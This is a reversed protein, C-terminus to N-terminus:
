ALLTEKRKALWAKIVGIFIPLVSLFVITIIVLHLKEGLPTRGIFYGLFSMSTVWLIGGTINFFVFNRYSMKAVGAVFPVFTRFIPVFRALIIAKGGHKEYFNHADEVYKKKFFRGDERTFIKSGTKNGLYFGLQDGTIAATILLANLVWINLIPEQGAFTASCLIGATVILSDGPLFFGALLGTEAFIIAVLVWYGGQRILQELGEPSHLMHLFDTIMEM